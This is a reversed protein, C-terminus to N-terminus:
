SWKKLNLSNILRDALMRQQDQKRYDDQLSDGQRPRNRILQEKLREMEGPCVWKGSSMMRLAANFRHLPPLGTANPSTNLCAHWLAQELQSYSFCKKRKNYAEWVLWPVMVNHWGWMDYPVPPALPVRPTQNKPKLPSANSNNNTGTTKEKIADDEARPEHPQFGVAEQEQVLDHNLSSYSSGCDAPTTNKYLSLKRPKSALIKAENEGQLTIKIRNTKRLQRIVSAIGLSEFHKFARNCTDESFGLLEKIKRASLRIYKETAGKRVALLFIQRFKESMKLDHYALKKVPRSDADYPAHEIAQQLASM